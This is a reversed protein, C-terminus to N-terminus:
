SHTLFTRVTQLSAKYTVAVRLARPLRMRMRGDIALLIMALTRLKLGRLSAFEGMVGLDFTM